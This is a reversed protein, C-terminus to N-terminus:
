YAATRAEACEHLLEKLRKTARTRQQKMREYERTGVRSSGSLAETAWHTRLLEVGEPTLENVFTFLFREASRELDPSQAPVTSEEEEAEDFGPLGTVAHAECNVAQFVRRATSQRLRLAIHDTLGKRAQEDLAELFSTMVLHDREPHSVYHSTLRNRLRSLCPYFAVLLASSWFARSSSHTWQNLIARALSERAAYRDEAEDALAALVSEITAHASLTADTRQASAYVARNAESQLESRLRDFTKRFRNV